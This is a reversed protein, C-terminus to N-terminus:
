QLSHDIKSMQDASVYPSNAYRLNGFVERATLGGYEEKSANSGKDVSHVIKYGKRWLELAPHPLGRWELCLPGHAAAFHGMKYGAAVAAMSFYVDEQVRSHWRYPVDLGAIESIATLCARTIFYAGGFVKDGRRYDNAEALKLM